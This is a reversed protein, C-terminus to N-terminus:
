RVAQGSTFSAWSVCTATYVSEWLSSFRPLKHGPVWISKQSWAGTEYSSVLGWLLSDLNPADGLHSGGSSWLLGDPHRWLSRTQREWCSTTMTRCTSSLNDTGSTNCKRKWGDIGGKFLDKRVSTHSFHKFETEYCRLVVAQSCWFGLTRPPPPPKYVKLVPSNVGMRKRRQKWIM